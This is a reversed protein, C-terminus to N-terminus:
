RNHPNFLSKLLGSPFRMEFNRSPGSLASSTSETGAGGVPQLGVCEPPIPIKCVGGQEYRSDPVCTQNLGCTSVGYQGAADPETPTCPVSCFPPYDAKGDANADVANPAWYGGGDIDVRVPNTVAYPIVPFSDPLELSGLLSNVDLIGAPLKDLLDSYGALLSEAALAIVTTFLIHGFPRRKYVPSLTSDPQIGYAMVVYWSDVTPRELDLVRDFDVTKEVQAERTTDPDVFFVAEQLGNRYIEVRDVAFWSASQVRVRAQLPQGEPATLTDGVGASAQGSLIQFDIFPGASIVAHGKKLNRDIEAASAAIPRDSGSAVFTRPLGVEDLTNHSDSNGVASVDFGANLFAFWDDLMEFRDTCPQNGCGHCEGACSAACEPTWGTGGDAEASCCEPHAACVCAECACDEGGCGAAYAGEANATATCGTFAKEFDCGLDTLTTTAHYSALEEPTRELMYRVSLQKVAELAIRKCDLLSIDDAACRDLEAKFARHWRCHDRQRLKGQDTESASSLALLADCDGAPDVQLWGCVADDAEAGVLPFQTLSRAAVIERYCENHLKMEGITPTWLYEVHKGNIIEIADFNCPVTELVANCMQMGPTKRELDYGKLGIQSFMGLTGDRPHNAELVFDDPNAARARIQEFAQELTGGQWQPPNHVAGDTDDYKMPFGNYHGWELPSMEVGVQTLLYPELGLERVRPQYDLLFDHDSSSMFELGEAAGAKLRTDLELGADSSPFQHIHFDAALWGATDIERPLTIQVPTTQGPRVEVDGVTRAAYEFGRSALVDYHGAPLSVRGHGDGSHELKLIGHDIQSDGLFPEAEGEWDTRLGDADLAIFSLRVPGPQGGQDTVQYEIAGPGPLVFNVVETEDATITIPVLPSTGYERLHALALYSGERLPGSYNGDHVPDTGVDTQMQAYFGAHGWRKEALARYETFTAPVPETASARPDALVFVSAHTVPAGSSDELVVGKLTGHPTGRLAYVSGLTSGVDGDGVVLYREFTYSRVKDVYTGDDAQQLRDGESFHSLVATASTTFLPVLVKSELCAHEPVLALTVDDGLIAQYAKVEASAMVTAQWAAFAAQRDALPADAGPDITPDVPVPVTYGLQIPTHNVVAIRAANKAVGAAFGIGEDSLAAALADERAPDDRPFDVAVLRYSPCDFGDRVNPNRATWTYSVNHGVGTVYELAFPSGMTGVGQWMNTFIKGDYDFGLEPAFIDCNGGFFLFDGAVVGGKWTPDKWDDSSGLLIKFFDRSENFTPMDPEAEACECLPCLKPGKANDLAPLETQIEQLAYGHECTKDCAVPPCGNLAKESPPSLRVTTRITLYSEGGHLVYDTTFDFSIQLRNLLGLLDVKLVSKALSVIQKFSMGAIGKSLFGELFDRNLYKLVDFMYGSHGEVRIIAEGDSGDKVLTVATVTQTVQFGDDGFALQWSGDSPNAVLLNALPFTEGFSDWGFGGREDSRWRARDLDVLGGGFVGAAWTPGNGAVVARLQDNGILFDGIKGKASPGGILEDQRTVQTAKVWERKEACGAVLALALLGVLPAASLRRHTQM